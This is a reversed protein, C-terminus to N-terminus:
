FFFFVVVFNRVLTYLEEQAFLKLVKGWNKKCKPVTWSQGFPHQECAQSSVFKLESERKRDLGFMSFARFGSFVTDFLLHGFNHPSEPKFYFAVYKGLNRQGGFWRLGAPTGGAVRQMSFPTCTSWAYTNLSALPNPFSLGFLSEKM